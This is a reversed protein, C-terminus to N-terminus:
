PSPIHETGRGADSPLSKGLASCRDWTLEVWDRAGNRDGVGNRTGDKEEKEDGHRVGDRAGDEGKIKMVIELRM